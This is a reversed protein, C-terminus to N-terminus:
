LELGTTLVFLNKNNHKRLYVKKDEKRLSNMRIEIM